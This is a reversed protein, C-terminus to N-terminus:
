EHKEEKNQKNVAEHLKKFFIFKDVAKQQYERIEQTKNYTIDEDLAQSGLKISKMREQKMKERIAKM